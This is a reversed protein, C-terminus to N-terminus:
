ASGGYPVHLMEAAKRKTVEGRRDYRQTTTVNSHGALRQVTAIDAGADLLDSIFTRRLDHPSFSGVGAAVARKRLSFLVSQDSMRRVTIRGSKNVPCFLAGAAKGRMSLWAALATQAGGTAYAVRAKHGKGSRITLAGTEADYDALELAAAESRRLGAGYLVALLAADRSGGATKDAACNLFLARLEGSALARGRPLTTAKVAALDAARQFDSSDMQGLRWSERLVGRLAALMKNVTAPAYTEALRARVAQTHQYRLEHWQLTAAGDRGSTLIGAITNLAALMARRSGQSLRALYVAAANREPAELRVLAGAVAVNRALAKTKDPKTMELDKM